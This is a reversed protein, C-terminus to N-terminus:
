LARFRRRLVVILANLALALALLIFGLGIGLAFEGKSTELAIATTINRTYGRINGGIMMASGVESIARSLASFVAVALPIRCHHLLLWLQQRRGAGLSWAEERLRPDAQELAASVLSVLLPLILVTQGIAMATPTFLLGLSGLPGQRFLMAYLLLGVVVTPVAMLTQCITLIIRRGPFRCTGLAFGAPVAVLTAATIAALSVTLSIWLASYLDADGTVILRIARVLAEKMFDVRGEEGRLNFWGTVRRHPVHGVHM